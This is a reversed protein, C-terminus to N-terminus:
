PTVVLKRFVHAPSVRATVREVLQEVRAIEDADAPPEKGIKVTITMWCGNGADDPFAPTSGDDRSPVSREWVGGSEEITVQEADVFIAIIKELGTKTGRQHHRHVAGAILERRLAAPWREYLELGVWGALWDLVHEPATMPDFYAPLSDLTCFVPALVADLAATFRRVFSADPLGPLPDPERYVAPIGHALPAPSPLEGVPAPGPREAFPVREPLLATV